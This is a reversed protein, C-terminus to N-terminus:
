KYKGSLANKIELRNNTDLANKLKLLTMLISAEEAKNQRKRAQSLM